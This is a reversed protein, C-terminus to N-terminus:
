GRLLPLNLSGYSPAPGNNFTKGGPRELIRCSGGRRGPALHCVDPSLRDMFGFFSVRGSLMSRKRLWTRTAEGQESDQSAIGPPSRMREQARQWCRTYLRESM